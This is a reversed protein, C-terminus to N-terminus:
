FGRSGSLIIVAPRGTEQKRAFGDVPVVDAGISVNFAERADAKAACSIPLALAVLPWTKM